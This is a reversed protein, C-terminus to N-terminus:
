TPRRSACGARRRYSQSGRRRLSVSRRRSYPCASARSRCSVSRATTRASPHLSRDGRPRRGRRACRCSSPPFYRLRRNRTSPFTNEASERWGKKVLPFLHAIISVFSHLLLNRGHFICSIQRDFLGLHQDDATTRRSKTGRDRRRARAGLGHQDLLVAIRATHRGCAEDGGKHGAVVAAAVGHQDATQKLLDNVTEDLHAAREMGRRDLRGRGEGRVNVRAVDVHGGELGLIQLQESVAHQLLRPDLHQVVRAENVGHGLSIADAAHDNRFLLTKFSSLHSGLTPMNSVFTVFDTSFSNWIGTNEDIIKAVRALSTIANAVLNVITTDAETWGAINTKFGTLASALSPFKQAFSALDGGGIIKDIWGGESPIDKAVTSLTSVAKAATEVSALDGETFDSGSMALKFAGLATALVPFQTAFTDLDNEGIIKGAWGGSNPIEAAVESLKAVAKAAAEVVVLDAETFDSDTMAMKFESLAKALTPFKAAFDGIDNDGLLKAAWGGSNPIDSAAQALLKIANAANGVVGCDEETFNLDALATKFGALGEALTPLQTAFNALSSNGDWFTLADLLDAASLLLITEALTKVGALSEPNIDAVQTFFGSAEEMFGSLSAGLGILGAGGLTLIGAIFDAASLLLISASLYGTGALVDSDVMKAGTIFVMAGAMFGSLAAGIAPLIQLAAGAFGALLNGVISGVAYALKELIPIGTDLFGGLSPFKQMLAGIAVALAGTALMFGELAVLGAVGLLAFPGIIAVKILLDTMTTMMDMLLEANAQANNIGQMLALIGVFTVMPVAMALLLGVGIIAPVGFAGIITLVGLLLTLAGTLAVLLIANNVANDLGNMLYLVGIFAVLPVAMALLLAVGILAKKGTKGIGDLARLAISMAIVLVSLAVASGISSEIPLSSLLYLIGALAAIAVTMVIITSMSGSASKSAAIMVAFMGMVMSLAISAGVLKGTDIMSLLAISGAMIGIAVTMVILNSKCDSAGRTAWIMATMVLGLMTVAVLGKALNEVKISGLIAVSIALIGIAAAMTILTAGIKPADKGAKKTIEVLLYIVGTLAALGIAAKGIESWEMSGLIKAVIALIAMAGSIALLTVGLAQMEAPTGAKKTILVLLAIIGTLAGIGAAAKGMESWEMGAIIKAVITLILMAGSIALITSGAAKVTAPGGALKTAWILAAVIVALGGIGAAAKGMESWEMGAIIKAVIALILMATAISKICGGIEKMKAPGGALKTAWILAAIIVALGGIGAAAKGMESWEMGGIIKAVVALILIATAISTLASGATKIGKGSKNIVKCVYAVGLLVGAIGVLAIGGQILKDRDMAGLLAVAGGVILLAAAIGVLGGTINNVKAGDKGISVSAKSITNLAWSILVLGGALAGIVILAKGIDFRDDACVYALAIVAAVLIGLAIVLDKIAQAKLKFAVGNLVKSFSNVVKAIPIITEAIAGALDGFGGLANAIKNAVFLIGGGFASVLISGFDIGKMSEFVGVLAGSIHPMGDKIISAIGSVLGRIMDWLGAIIDSIYGEGDAFAKFTLM